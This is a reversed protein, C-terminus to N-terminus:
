AARPAIDQMLSLREARREALVHIQFEIEDLRDAYTRRLEALRAEPLPGLDVCALVGSGASVMLVANEYAPCDNPDYVSFVYARGSRGRWHRFRRRYTAECALFASEDERFGGAADSSIFDLLM